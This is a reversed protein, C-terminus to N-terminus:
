SINRIETASFLSGSKLTFASCVPLFMDHPGVVESKGQMSIYRYLYLRM